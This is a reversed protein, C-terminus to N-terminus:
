SSPWWNQDCYPMEFDTPRTVRPCEDYAACTAWLSTGMMGTDVYLFQVNGRAERVVSDAARLSRLLHYRYRADGAAKARRALEFHRNQDGGRSDDSLWATDRNGIAENYPATGPGYQKATSLKAARYRPLGYGSEAMWRAYAVNEKRTRAFLYEVSQCLAAQTDYRLAPSRDEGGERASGANGCAALLLLAGFSRLINVRM